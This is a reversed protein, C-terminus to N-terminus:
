ADADGGTYVLDIYSDNYSSEIWECHVSDWVFLSGDSEDLAYGANDLSVEFGDCILKWGKELQTLGYDVALEEMLYKEDDPSLTTRVSKKDTKWAYDYDDWDYVLPSYYRNYRVRAEKYTSNSYYIGGDHIFDGLVNMQGTRSLFCLKSDAVLQLGNLVDPYAMIDMKSAIPAVVRRVFVMTDSVNEKKVDPHHGVSSIIGNHAMGLDSTWELKRLTKYSSVVPFPHTNAAINAGHTGIRFHMVVPLDDLFGFRKKLQKLKAMFADYTMLGKFGYVKGKAALMIGAGDPNNTFCTSLTEKTPMKVGANKAVIICM